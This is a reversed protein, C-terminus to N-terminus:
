RGASEAVRGLARAPHTHVHTPIRTYAHVDTHTAAYKNAYKNAYKTVHKEVRKELHLESHTRIRARERRSPKGYSSEAARRRGRYKTWDRTHTEFRERPTERAAERPHERSPKQQRETLPAHDTRRVGPGTTHRHTATHIDDHASVGLGGWTVPQATTNTTDGGVAAWPRRTGRAVGRRDPIESHTCVRRALHIDSQVEISRSSRTPGGKEVVVSFGRATITTLAHTAAHTTTNRTTTHTVRLRVAGSIRSIRTDDTLVVCAADRERALQALRVGHVRSLAPAGDIVILSFVGSRLLLDACWSSRKGNHPRIVVLRSGANAWPAPALTRRADIWAVWGGSQLVGTVVQQLLATKGSGLTGVVETIRGRQFGGGLAADLPAIRTTWPAGATRGGAVVAHLQSRLAALVPQAPPHLPPSLPLARATANM